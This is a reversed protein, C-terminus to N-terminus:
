MVLPAVITSGWSSGRRISGASTHCVTSRSRTMPMVTTPSAM